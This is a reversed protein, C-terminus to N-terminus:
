VDKQAADDLLMVVCESESKRDLVQSLADSMSELLVM